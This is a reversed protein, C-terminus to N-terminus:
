ELFFKRLRPGNETILVFQKQLSWSIKLIQIFKRTQLFIKYKRSKLFYKRINEWFWPPLHVSTLDYDQVYLDAREKLRETLRCWLLYKSIHIESKALLLLSCSLSCSLWPVLKLVLLCTLLATCFKVKFCPSNVFDNAALEIEVKVVNVQSKLMLLDRFTHAGATLWNEFWFVIRSLKEFGQLQKWISCHGSFWVMLM